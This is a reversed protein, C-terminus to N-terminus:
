IIKRLILDEWKKIINESSNKKILNQADKVKDNMALPNNLFKKFL